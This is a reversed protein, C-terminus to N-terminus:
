DVRQPRQPAAGGREEVLQQVAARMPREELARELVRAVAPKLGAPLRGNVRNGGNEAASKSM